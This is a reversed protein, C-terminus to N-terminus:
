NDFPKSIFDTAGMSLARHKAEPTGDATLVMIPLFSDVPVQKRLASLIEYGDHHPMHLDLLVLDPDNDTFMSVAHRSDTTMSFHEYGAQQLIRELLHVNAEEDDVIFIKAQHVLDTTM